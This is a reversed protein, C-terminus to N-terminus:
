RFLRYLSLLLLFGFAFREYAAERHIERDAYWIGAPATLPRPTKESYENM